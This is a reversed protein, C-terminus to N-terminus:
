PQTGGQAGEAPTPADPYRAKREDRMANAEAARGQKDLLTAAKAMADPVLVPDNFLISVSMYFRLAGEVDGKLEANRALGCYALARWRLQDQPTARVAAENLRAAAEDHKGADTLLEGLCLAAETGYVTSAGTALSATFAQMAPDRENKARHARGILTWATQKWGKDASPLALLTNAARIANDYQNQSSDFEALWALRDVGIKEAIPADLLQRFYNAADAKRGTQLLIAGLDLMIEREFEKPPTAALAAHYMKEAEATEDIQRFISARWYFIEAKRQDEPFRRLLEDLTASAARHNKLRIEEMAKQYLTEATMDSAPYKTLLETWDRLAAEAQGIRSMCVGSAYLAKPALEDNPFRAVVQRYWGAAAVWAEQKQLTRGLRYLADKAFPSGPCKEVILQCNQVVLDDKKLTMAAEANVWYLNDALEAPPAVIGKSAALVEEYKGDRYLVMVREYQASVIFRGQPFADVLQTYFTVAETRQELHNLANAKVYLAEERSAPPLQANGLAIDAADSAEKFRKSYLNAWATPLASAPLRASNPYKAKFVQFLNASEEYHGSALAVQAVFYSAEEAVKVDKAKHALDLYIGMAHRKDEPKGTQTLLWAARLGAYMGYESDPSEDLLQRYRALADVTRQMRELTEGLHYLAALRVEPPIGVSTLDEFTKAAAPLSEGGADMMTLALQLRARSVQGSDPFEKMLRAYVANAEEARKLHRYCEGLRFLVVDREPAGPTDVLAVYERAALDFMNRRFLGDALQQRDKIEIADPAAVALGALM